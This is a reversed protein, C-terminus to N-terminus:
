VEMIKKFSREAIESHRIKKLWFRVSEQYFKTDLVDIHGYVEDLMTQYFKIEHLINNYYFQIENGM